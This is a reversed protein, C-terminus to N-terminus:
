YRSPSLHSTPKAPILAELQSRLQQVEAKLAQNERTLAANCQELTDFRKFMGMRELAPTLKAPTLKLSEICDANAPKQAEWAVAEPKLGAHNRQKLNGGAQALVELMEPLGLGATTHALTNGKDDIAENINAILPLFLKFLSLEKKEVALLAWSLPILNVDLMLQFQALYDRLQPLMDAKDCAKALSILWTQISQEAVLRKWDNAKLLSFVIPLYARIIEGSQACISLLLTPDNSSLPKYLLRPESKLLEQFRQVDIKVKGCTLQYLANRQNEPLYVDEWHSPNEELFERITSRMAYNPFVMPGPLPLNTMPSLVQSTHSSSSSSASKDMVAQIYQEIAEREYTHGDMACVPDVMIECTIPCYYNKPAEGLKGKDDAVFPPWPEAFLQTKASLRQREQETRIREAEEDADLQILFLHKPNAKKLQTIEQQYLAPNERQIRRLYNVDKEEMWQRIAPCHTDTFKYLYLQYGDNGREFVPECSFGALVTGSSKHRILYCDQNAEKGDPNGKQTDGEVTFADNFESSTTIDELGYSPFSNKPNDQHWGNERNQRYNKLAKQAGAGLAPWTWGGHRYYVDHTIEYPRPSGSNHTKM